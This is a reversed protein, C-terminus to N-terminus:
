KLDWWFVIWDKINEKQKDMLVYFHKFNGFSHKTAGSDILDDIIATSDSKPNNTLPIDLLYAIRTAPILGGRPVGFINKINKNKNIKKAMVEIRKEFEEFGMYYEGNLKNKM